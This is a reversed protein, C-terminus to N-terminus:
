KSALVVKYSSLSMWRSRTGITVRIYDDIRPKAFLPACTGGERRLSRM